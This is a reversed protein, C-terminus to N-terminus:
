ADDRQRKKTKFIATCMLNELLYTPFFVHVETLKKDLFIEHSCFLYQM